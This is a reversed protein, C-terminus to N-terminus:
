MARFESSLEVFDDNASAIFPSIQISYTAYVQRTCEGFVNDRVRAHVYMHLNGVTDPMIGVRQQGYTRIKRRIERQGGPLLSSSRDISRPAALISERTSRVPTTLPWCSDRSLLSEGFHAGSVFNEYM